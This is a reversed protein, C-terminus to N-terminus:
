DLWHETNVVVAELNHNIGDVYYVNLKMGYV